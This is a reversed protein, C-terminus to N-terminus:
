ARRGDTAMPTATSARHGLGPAASPASFQLRLLQELPMRLLQPLSIPYAAAPMAMALVLLCRPAALRWAAHRFVVRLGYRQQQEM